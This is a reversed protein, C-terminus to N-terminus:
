AKEELLRELSKSGKCLQEKKNLTLKKAPADKILTTGAGLMAEAGIEVPAVLQCGSGLFANDGIITKYKNKGDYNCTIVGAGVNVGAGVEADGIYSLHNIKSNDGVYSKKVEVFNGIKVENSLNAGPRLRAFPGVICKEGVTAGDLISNAEIVAGDSITSNKIICNPGIYVGSGLSVEGDLVVNVDICTDAGASIQGRIDVRSPDMIRVGIDMLGAVLRQQMAREALALDAQSNVGLAEHEQIQNAVVAVGQAKAIAIVDTLYLEGCANDPALMKLWEKLKDTPLLLVGTNIEKLALVDPAADKHEIISEVAGDLGRVIRGMGFPNEYKATLVGVGRSNTKAILGMISSPQILPMDGLLVLTQSFSKACVSDLAVKVAHGTGKQTEQEVWLLDVDNAFSRQLQGGGHGKVVIINDPMLSRASDLVWRLISQGAVKHLPKPIASQMRTGKGAALVIVLLSM